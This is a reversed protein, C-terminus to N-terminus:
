SAPHAAATGSPSKELPGPAEGSRMPVEAWIVGRLDGEAYGTATDDPYRAKIADAIPEAIARGHCVLCPAEVVLGRALRLRGRDRSVHLLEGPATGADVQHQFASLVDQQWDNPANMPNRLRLATRGVAIGHEASVQAAIQPAQQHCFDVAQLPGQAQMKATLATKLRQGLDAMAAQARAQDEAPVSAPQAGAAVAASVSFLMLLGQILTRM